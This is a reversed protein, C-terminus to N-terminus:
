IHAVAQYFKIDFYVFDLKYGKRIPCLFPNDTLPLPDGSALAQATANAKDMRCM